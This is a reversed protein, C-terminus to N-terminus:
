SKNFKFLRRDAQFPHHSIIKVNEYEPHACNLIYNRASPIISSPVSLILTPDETLWREGIEALIVPAPYHGWNAPLDSLTLITMSHEPVELTLLDWSPIIMHPVHVLSELLAIEISEGTYLVPRGKKNWRGGYRAAGTGSLDGACKSGTIRYAKM